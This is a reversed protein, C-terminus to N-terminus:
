PARPFAWTTSTPQQVMLQADNDEPPLMRACPPEFHDRDPLPGALRPDLLADLLLPLTVLREALFPSRVVADVLRSLAAPQEDLLALYSARRLINHLLALLRRLVLQSDIAAGAAQVLVPVVRDLRAFAAAPWCPM